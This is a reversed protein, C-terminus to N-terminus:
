KVVRLKLAAERGTVQGFAWDFATGAEVERMWRALVCALCLAQDDRQVFALTAIQGAFFALEKSVLGSDAMSQIGELLRALERSKAPSM